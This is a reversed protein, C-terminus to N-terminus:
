EVYNGERYATFQELLDPNNIIIKYAVQLAARGATLHQYFRSDQPIPTGFEDREMTDHSLYFRRMTSGIHDPMLKAMAQVFEVLVLQPNAGWVTDDWEILEKLKELRAENSWKM